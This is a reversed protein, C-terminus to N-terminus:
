RAGRVTAEILILLCGGLLVGSGVVPNPQFGIMLGATLAVLLLIAITLRADAWFMGLLEKMVDRLISM